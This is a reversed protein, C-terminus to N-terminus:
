KEKPENEPLEKAIGFEVANKLVKQASEYASEALKIPPGYIQLFTGLANMITGFDTGSMQFVDTHEWKYKKAPDYKIPEAKKPADEVMKLEKEMLEM